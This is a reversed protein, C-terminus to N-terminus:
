GPPWHLARGGLVHIHLHHVTQGGDDGTNVVTRFGNKLNESQVLAPIKLFLDGLVQAEEIETINAVHKKPIILIHTPAQPNVDRICICNDDELVKQAPIQGNIIKCFICNENGDM